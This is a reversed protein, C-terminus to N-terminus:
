VYGNHVLRVNKGRCWESLRAVFMQARIGPDNCNCGINKCRGCVGCYARHEDRWYASFFHHGHRDCNGHLKVVIQRPTEPVCNAPIM